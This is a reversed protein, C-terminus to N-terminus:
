GGCRVSAAAPGSLTCAPNGLIEVEGAGAANVKATRVAGVAVTGATDATLQLDDGRLGRGDFDGSGQVTARLTKAKGGATITGSGLLGVILTDAEVSGIALSGSGSVSVDVRLGSARDIALSGSGTVAAARLSRAAVEIRVPAVADGPYGGWGSRNRRIRLTRGQVEVAVRAIADATGIARATSPRGTALTVQFPGEVQVRDFDTVSYTREAAEAPAATAATAAALALAAALIRDM